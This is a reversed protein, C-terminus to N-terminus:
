KNETARHFDFPVFLAVLSLFSFATLTPSTKIVKIKTREDNFSLPKTEKANTTHKEV